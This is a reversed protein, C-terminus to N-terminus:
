RITVMNMDPASLNLYERETIEDMDPMVHIKISYETDIVEKMPLYQAMHVVTVLAVIKVLDVHVSPFFLVCTCVHIYYCMFITMQLNTGFEGRGGGWIAWSERWFTQSHCM